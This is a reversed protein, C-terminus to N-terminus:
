ILAIVQRKLFRRLEKYRPCYQEVLNWFRDSHDHHVTHALEHIVVYDIVDPSFHILRWNFRLNGESTCSGWRSIQQGFRITGFRVNMTQAWRHTRTVLEREAQTKLWTVLTKPIDIQNFTVPTVFCVGKEFRIKEPGISDFRLYYLQGLYSLVGEDFNLTPNATARLKMRQTQHEIWPKSREVFSDIQKKSVFRPASVVVEGNVDVRVKISSSRNARKLVYQM